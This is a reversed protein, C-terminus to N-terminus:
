RSTAARTAPHWPAFNWLLAWARCHMRCATRSGHLHQGRDFYGNMGRMLRDRMNSTRHGGGHHYALSFRRRKGCLDLVTERVIGTLQESAWQNLRRLRQGFHRRDPAHYAEWVRRSVETFGEKLHKARDRIKLWAHLFCLLIVVTPFLGKWAAHTGKWGDTSVAQPAYQATVDGAEAKFVGYAAGLDDGGAAEAPEAGLLCGGGVTTAIYLKQGDRSQHHEDALLHAPLEAQRVTTGVISFYDVVGLPRPILIAGRPPRDCPTAGKPPPSSLRCRGEGEGGGRAQGELRGLPCAPSGIMTM